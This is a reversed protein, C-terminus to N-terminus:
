NEYALNVKDTDDVNFVSAYSRTTFNREYSKNLYKIEGNLNTYRIYFLTNDNNMGSAKEIALSRANGFHRVKPLIKSITSNTFDINMTFPLMSYPMGNLQYNLSSSSHVNKDIDLDDTFYIYNSKNENMIFYNDVNSYSEVIRTNQQFNYNDYSVKLLVLLLVVLCIVGFNNVINNNTIVKVLSNVEKNIEKIM